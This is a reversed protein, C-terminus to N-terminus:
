RKRSLGALVLLVGGIGSVIIGIGLGIAAQWYWTPRSLSSGGLYPSVLTLFHVGIGWGFLFMGVWLPLLRNIISLKARSFKTIGQLGVIRSEVKIEGIAEASLVKIRVSDDKNLLLPGLEVSKTNRSLSVKLNHPTTEIIEADLLQAQEGFLITIPETFDGPLVPVNGSNFIRLVILRLNSIRRGDFRIEAGAEIEKEISLVLTNSVVEYTIEKRNQQKRYILISTVTAIIIAVVAVYVAIWAPDYWTVDSLITM